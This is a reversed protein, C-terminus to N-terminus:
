ICESGPECKPPAPDYARADTIKYGASCEAVDIRFMIHRHKSLVRRYILVMSDDDPDIIAQVLKMGKFERLIKTCPSGENVVEGQPALPELAPPENSQGLLLLLAAIQLM